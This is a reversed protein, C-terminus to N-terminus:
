AFAEQFFLRMTDCQRTWTADLSMQTRIKLRQALSQSIWRNQAPHSTIIWDQTLVDGGQIHQWIHQQVDALSSCAYVRIM